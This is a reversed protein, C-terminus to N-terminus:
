RSSRWGGLGAVVVGSGWRWLLAADESEGVVPFCVFFDTSTEALAGVVDSLDFSEGVVPKTM